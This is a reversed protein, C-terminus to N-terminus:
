AAQRKRSTILFAQKIPLGFFDSDKIETFSHEINIAQQLAPLAPNTDEIIVIRSILLLESQNFANQITTALYKLAEQKNRSIWESAVLIDWKDSSEERLFFGFLEYEGREKSTRKEIETLKKLFDKM